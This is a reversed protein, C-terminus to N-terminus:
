VTLLRSLLLHHHSHTYLPVSPILRPHQIDFALIATLRLVCFSDANNGIAASQRSVESVRGFAVFRIAVEVVLVVNVLMEVVYFLTGPCESALSMVVTLLSAVAM